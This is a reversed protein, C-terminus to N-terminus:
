IGIVVNNIIKDRNTLLAKRIVGGDNIYIEGTKVLQSSENFEFPTKQVYGKKNLVVLSEAVDDTFVMDVGYNFLQQTYYKFRGGIYSALVPIDEANIASVVQSNTNITGTARVSVIDHGYTVAEDLYYQYENPRPMGGTLTAATPDEQKISRILDATHFFVVQNMMQKEKVQELVELAESDTDLNLHLFIFLNKGKFYDLVEELTPVKTDPRDAFRAGKWAGADLGEIDSFNLEKVLGTGPTTRNISQDHMIIYQGDLTRRVDIEIGRAGNNYAEEFALITNEPYVFSYGRHGIILKDGVNFM